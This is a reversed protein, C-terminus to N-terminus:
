KNEVLKERLCKIKQVFYAELSEACKFFPSDRPNYYRCNDFMKTMDGIFESLKRYSRKNIRLEITQLDIPEKIIGYYDPAEDPDVPEMFPWSSKHNQLQKILKRLGEFDKANLNKMNAFNINSNRQCNPCIYEDINDAESQLIGVCRGHFWDQCRDCCIYFQSEDYPQKCLCYLEQTDRAHRCETCVFETLSKSMEETIGVCEGHFWNNCLDCGVYFKTEDYPTRCLCYLKEKKRGSGGGGGGGLATGGSGPPGSSTRQQKRPRGGGRSASPPSVTSASVPASKRKGSGTRVEDQKNREAKTRAALETSLDKQIEIQLEKELLARKKIMDKKLLEKHRFLLVQLKTQVQQRRREEQSERWKSTRSRPAPTAVAPKEESSRDDRLPKADRTDLKTVKRKPTSEWDEQQQNAPQSTVPSPRKKAPAKTLVSTTVQPQVPVEGTKDHKMQKEQYRQLQLLKEEIEPNLNEQKLANKITHQIYEPTLVFKNAASTATGPTIGLLGGTGATSTATLTGAEAGTGGPLTLQEDTEQQQGNVVVQQQSVPIGGAATTNSAAVLGIQQTDPQAVQQVVVKPQSKTPSQATVPAPVTAPSTATVTSAPSTVAAAPQQVSTPPPQVALYIKTPGLVGQKGTTAQAKLLQQKVQQQVVALQQQTFEAGHLGQLVIRPGQPTQIVQATVCKIVTGPPQGALLQQELSGPEAGVQKEEAPAPASAQQPSIVQQQPPVELTSPTTSTTTAINGSPTQVSTVPQQVTQQQGLSAPTTVTKVLLNGGATAVTTGGAVSASTLAPVTAGASVVVANAGPTVTRIFVQQGGITALQAKGSALQAALNSGSVVLQGTSLLQGGTTMVQTPSGVVQNGSVVIQGPSFVQGGSVVVTGPQAAVKQVVQAGAIQQRIMIHQQPPKTPSQPIDSTGKQQIATAPTAAIAIQKTPMANSKVAAPQQAGATTTRIVTGKTGAALVRNGAVQQIQSTQVQATNLVHLKGDPMQVLQQGPMLGRVQIKGDAGKLIQVRQQTPPAATVSAQTSPQIKILSQGQQGATKPLISTTHGSIIRTTGDTGKTMFIRKTGVLTKGPTSNTTNTLLSTLTTKGTTSQSGPSPPIAVKTVIKLTGDTAQQTTPVMKFVQGGPVKLTELARKQQHAARQMKLQQEMKEKIEEPTAKGSVIELKGTTGTGTATTGVDGVTKPVVSGSRSRDGYQKIEWLELKEEEVWEETVQPETSQPSEARKRKRLGSRISTVERVTKPLELPIVVKRRLYQTRDMFKGVHRHKLIELTMIETDTTVQHKGDNSPPKVQMDDWRLCAWMIRLQLAAAALSRLNVTRYLWCTKFLPRSCPYPWVQQNAKALHHYGNVAMRGGLRSLRRLEHQPLILMNRRKSRTQFTSCLPYKVPTRKKRRDALSVAVKKLYVRGKTSTASYVRRNEATQGIETSSSQSTVTKVSSGNEKNVVTTAVESSMKNKSTLISNLLKGSSPHSAVVSKHTNLLTAKSETVKINRVTGDVIKLTHRSSTTTTTTVVESTTTVHVDDVEIISADKMENSSEVVTQREERKTESKVPVGEPSSTSVEVEACTDPAMTSVEVENLAPPTITSEESEGYPLPGSTTGDDKTRQVEDPIATDTEDPMEVCEVNNEGNSLTKGKDIDMAETQVVEETDVSGADENQGASEKKSSPEEAIPIAVKGEDECTTAAAVASELDRRIAEMGDVGGEATASATDKNQVKQSTPTTAVTKVAPLASTLLNNNSSHSNVKRLLILLERRVRAKQLCLPSYCSSAVSAPSGLHQAKSANCQTSYCSLSRGLRTLKAYQQRIATVRRNISNFVDKSPGGAASTGNNGVCLKGLFLSPLLQEASSVSDGEADDSEENEVDVEGDGDRNTKGNEGECPSKNMHKNANQAFKREELLKLHTRRTLFEDLRSKKAIKPYHLRGRSTLAKTIDIEEFKSIPPFVRLHKLASERGGKTISEQKVKAKGVDAASLVGDPETTVAGTKSEEEEQEQVEKVEAKELGELVEDKVKDKSDDEAVPESKVESNVESKVKEEAAAEDEACKKILFKYTNPDVALVKIEKGDKVQVMVKQPGARLGMKHCDQIKFKRSTSLWLWGWQGHVRYEEGKQKWVQHKLGLTYKVFNYTLRNREEEEEKDKKDKKDLRKREEREASTLRQMRVHGLAEHWVSAFVVPKICAQLVILARAFDRPNICASVATIWPKRLLPWNPHMFSSQISSELQLITQRLTSVLLARTGYLSGIWKFESAQTLSFKHSLHRKKDREENRQLKNLAAINTSYQNVYSKFGNEMGLKFMYTGTAIQQAKLRTIRTGDTSDRDGEKDKKDGQLKDLEAKSMAATNRRKLDDMNFTRPQLSGTKSRTLITHKKGDKGIKTTGEEGEKDSDLDLEDEDGESSAFSSSMRIASTTTTTTTTTTTIVETVHEAEGPSGVKTKEMTATTMTISSSTETTEITVPSLCSATLDLDKPLHLESEIHRDSLSFSAGVPPTEDCAEEHMKRVLEEAEQRERERREEEEKARREQREKQIKLLATNEVDLYSKKNGKNLNTLKETIEMQRIIEEKFDGIERALAVEMIERDVTQLLEELQVPTSYYWVDGDESEVFIRRALFWYKRGHRDFGLHEQRCLLGSKEADPICDVVGSVKHAQCVGCQWDEEPVGDMPPEVCALHFVAPCTECCLLDGLRHCIRCHDDYHINGENLLDERVPNTILFQDTLFQLVKLRNEVTTFPYECTNLINLTASDFEKDSEVYSRLVEPWTMADVFYMVVNVSDKQDLPGFHTQQSDEERLLAKLLMIHIEALLISQDECMMAACFEEFRFPSLRVLTRFHRLVEYICLAQMILDKPILLDDSSKPLELYPIERNQLWLPEPSPPRHLTFKKPTGSVTSYSSLSFDSDSSGGGELSEELESDSRLIDDELDSKGSSEDGFDSGYHYESDKDEVVDPNYGRRQYGGGGRRHKYRGRSRISRRSSESGVPSSARSATPTSTQSNPTESGINERNLLYKPKKMLHYQFKRPREMVVSKPPRGRRKAGRASM